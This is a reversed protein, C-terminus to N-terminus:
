QGGVMLKKVTGNQHRYLYVGKSNRRDISQGKLNYVGAADRAATGTDSIGSAEGGQLAGSGDAVVFSLSTTSSNNFVDWVRFLLVHSGATLSPIAYSVHGRKYDGFEYEFAHALNYTTRLKGDIILEPDHGVGYNSSNIGDADYIDAHFYPSESVMDGNEFLVNDLYCSVQPGEGSDPMDPNFDMVFSHDAGHAMLTKSEDVAYFFFTGPQDTFSIDKPVAFTFAFRGNRVSDTSHFLTYPRDKWEFQAKTDSNNARGVIVQDADCVTITALGCFDDNGPLHGEVTVVSGALLHRRGDAVNEGNIRDVVMPETPRNLALAPDGLLVYQLHNPRDNRPYQSSSGAEYFVAQKAIRVAEGITYPRGKADKGLLRRMFCKNLICNLQAYVTHVTTFVAIAGGTPNLLATEGINPEQANFPSIDCAALFWLPLRGKAPTAFDDYTLVLEHSITRASGHGTYNMVLAGDQMQQRIMKTVDPYDDGKSSTTMPYADWYIKKLRFPSDFIGISDVVFEVNKMHLNDNGDDAMFCVINQWDGANENLRYAITKDALVKADDASRAPLRGVAVDAKDGVVLNAGEEDDLMCFYDDTTYCETESFSNESEYCLLFDDPSYNRWDTTLMRNDWAGDGFLLLFRPRDAVTEARDYLMKLYRRYANADPTGSSFENFLEDAAVVGVRLSDYTEHLQKLRDAEEQLKRSAPIIIVMDLPGSGHLDQNAVEGAFAAEPLSATALDPLPRPKLSRLSIYDLRVDQGSLKRLTVTTTDTFLGDVGFTWTDAVAKSYGNEDIYAKKGLGKTTKSDVLVHGVTQGNVLVEVDCYYNYSMSVTLVGTDGGSTLRYHSDQGAILPDRQFLNRGGHFWSFNDVEYLSHYDDPAPYFADVYRASDVMLPADGGDDTLFYYGLDSYNNRERKDAMPDSWNVPGFAYFLRRGGAMCTPVEQLDDTESLYGGTLQEPQRAGGYGFVKVKAPDDFGAQRILEDTIVTFGTQKVSIKVWRGTALASHSAYRSRPAIRQPADQRVPNGAQIGIFAALVFLLLLYYRSRNM